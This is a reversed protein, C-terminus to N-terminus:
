GLLFSISKSVFNIGLFILGFGWVFAWSYSMDFCFWGYRTDLFFALLLSLPFFEFTGALLLFIAKHQPLFVEIAIWLNLGYFIFLFLLSFIIKRNFYLFAAISFTLIAILFPLM